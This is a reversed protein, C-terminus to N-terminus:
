RWQSSDFEFHLRTCKRTNLFVTTKHDNWIFQLIEGLFKDTIWFFFMLIFLTYNNEVNIIEDICQLDFSKIWNSHSLHVILPVIWQYSYTYTLLLVIRASFCEFCFYIYNFQWMANIPLPHIRNVLIPMPLDTQFCSLLLDFLFTCWLSLCFSAILDFRKSFTSNLYFLMTVGLICHLAAAAASLYFFCWM